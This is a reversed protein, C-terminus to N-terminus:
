IEPIAAGLADRILQCGLESADSASKTTQPLPAFFAIPAMM